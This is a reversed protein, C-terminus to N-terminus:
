GSSLKNEHTNDAWEALGRWDRALQLYYDRDRPDTARKAQDEAEAARQRFIDGQVNM